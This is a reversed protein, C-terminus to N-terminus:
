SSSDRVAALLLSEVGTQDQKGTSYERKRRDQDHRKDAHMTRSRKKESEGM